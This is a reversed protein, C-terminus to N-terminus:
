PPFFKRRVMGLLQFNAWLLLEIGSSLSFKNFSIHFVPFVVAQKSTNRQFPQSIKNQSLLCLPLSLNVFACVLNMSPVNAQPILSFDSKKTSHSYSHFRKALLFILLNFYPCLM